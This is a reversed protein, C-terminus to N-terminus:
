NGVSRRSSIQSSRGTGPISPPIPLEIARLTPANTTLGQLIRITKNATQLDGKLIGICRAYDTNNTHIVQIEKQLDIILKLERHYEEIDHDIEQIASTDAKVTAVQAANLLLTSTIQVLTDSLCSAPTMMTPSIPQTPIMPSSYHSSSTKTSLTKNSRPSFM